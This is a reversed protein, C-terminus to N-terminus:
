IETMLSNQQRTPRLRNLARNILNLQCNTKFYQLFKHIVQRNTDSTTDQRNQAGTANGNRYLKPSAPNNPISQCSFYRLNANAYALSANNSSGSSSESLDKGLKLKNRKGDNKTAM